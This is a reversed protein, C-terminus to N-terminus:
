ASLAAADRCPTRRDGPAAAEVVDQRLRGRVTRRGAAGAVARPAVRTPPDQRVGTEAVVRGTRGGGGPHLARRVGTGARDGRARDTDRRAGGAVLQLAAAGAAGGPRRGRD